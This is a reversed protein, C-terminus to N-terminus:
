FLKVKFSMVLQVTRRDLKKVVDTIEMWKKRKRNNRAWSVLAEAM